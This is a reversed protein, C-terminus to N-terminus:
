EKYYKNEASKQKVLVKLKHTSTQLSSLKSNLNSLVNCDLNEEFSQLQLKYQLDFNSIM